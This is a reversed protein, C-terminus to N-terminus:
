KLRFLYMISCLSSSVSLKILKSQTTSDGWNSEWLAMLSSGMWLTDIHYIKLGAWEMIWTNGHCNWGYFSVLFLFAVSQLITFHLICKVFYLTTMLTCMVCFYSIPRIMTIHPSRKLQIHVTFAGTNPVKSLAILLKWVQNTLVTISTNFHQQIYSVLLM